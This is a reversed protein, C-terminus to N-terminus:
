NHPNIKDIFEPLKKAMEGVESSILTRMLNESIFIPDKMKSVINNMFDTAFQLFKSKNEKIVEENDDLQSWWYYNSIIQKEIDDKSFSYINDLIQKIELINKTIKSKIYEQLNSKQINELLDSITEQYERLEDETIEHKPYRSEIKRLISIYLEIMELPTTYSNNDQEKRVNQYTTFKKYLGHHVTEQFLNRIKTLDDVIGDENIKNVELYNIYEQLIKICSMIQTTPDLFIKIENDQRINQLYHLVRINRKGSINYRKQLAALVSESNHKKIIELTERVFSIQNKPKQNTM